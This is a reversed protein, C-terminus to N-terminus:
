PACGQTTGPGGLLQVPEDISWAGDVGAEFLLDLSIRDLKGQSITRGLVGVDFREPPALRPCTPCFGTLQQAVLNANAGGFANREATVFRPQGREDYIFAAHFEYNEFFQVSYGTGASDPNFWHSSADVPLGGLTPCGRGLPAMPESGTKGDLTYSFLFGDSGTPTVTAHGIQTLVNRMGNWSARYIASTWLGEIGPAPAQLYYWTGVGDELYTYWLGAWQNGAPYLFLGHGSRDANFYSGPRVAPVNGEVVATLEIRAPAAAANRPILYWRGPTLAAGSVEIVENGTPGTASHTAANAVPAVLSDPGGGSGPAPALYLDVNQTSASQVTMRTAGLPVDIIISEHRQGPRLALTYPEGSRLVVAEVPLDYDHIRIPFSGMPQGDAASLAVYGVRYGGALLTGDHWAVRLTSAEGADARGPGTAVLKGISGSMPVEFIDTRTSATSVGRNHVMVWYAPREGPSQSLALECREVNADTASTCRLEDPSAQGDGNEDLGLYLDVATGEGADGSEVLVKWERADPTDSEPLTRLHVRRSEGGDWPTESSPDVSLADQIFVPGVLATTSYTASPMARLGILELDKFGANGVFYLEHDLHPRIMVTVTAERCVGGSLCVRYSFQDEGATDPHPQYRLVDDGASGPTGGNDVTASGKVPPAAVVLSGGALRALDFEDNELVPVATAPSNERLVLRDNRVAIEVPTAIDDDRVVLTWRRQRPTERYAGSIGFDWDFEITEDQEVATDGFVTVPLSVETQGVEIRLPTLPIPAYDVGPTASGGNSRVSFEVPIVAPSDLLFRMQAVSGGSNGEWVQVDPASLEPMSLLPVAQNSAPSRPGLGVANRARVTFTYTRGNELGSVTLRPYASAQPPVDAPTAEYIYELIPMGGDAPPEVEVRIATNASSARPKGPAEPVTAGDAILPSTIRIRRNGKDAIWLRNDVDVGLGSPQNLQAAGVPGGDGSFGATGTGIFSELQGDGGIRLIRHHQAQAIYLRGQQDLALATVVSLQAQTAPGGLGADGEVGTGAVTTIIGQPDVRRIRFNGNDAIYVSGDPAAALAGPSNLRASAAPGGDGSFGAEGTGAFALIVGAPPAASIPDLRVLRVRNGTSLFLSRPYGPYNSVLATPADLTAAAAAGGDGTDGASGNGALTRMIGQDDVM